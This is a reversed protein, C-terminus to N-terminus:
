VEEPIRTVRVALDARYRYLPPQVSEDLERFEATPAIRLAGPAQPTGHLVDLAVGATRATLTQDYSWVDLQVTATMSHRFGVPAYQGAGIHSLRICPYAHDKPLVPTAYVRDHVLATVEPDGLLLERVVLLPDAITM